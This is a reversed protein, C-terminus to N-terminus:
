SWPNVRLTLGFLQEDSCLKAKVCKFFLVITLNEICSKIYKCFVLFKLISLKILSKVYCKV